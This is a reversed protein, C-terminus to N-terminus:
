PGVTITITITTPANPVGGSQTTNQSARVSHAGEGSANTGSVEYCVVGTVNPVTADTYTLVNGVTALVATLAAANICAASTTGRYVKYGTAPDHTADPTGANWTLIATQNAAWASDIGMGGVSLMCLCMLLIKGYIRM